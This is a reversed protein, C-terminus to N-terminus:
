PISPLIREAEEGAIALDFSKLTLGLNTLACTIEEKLAQACYATNPDDSYRDEAVVMIRWTKM